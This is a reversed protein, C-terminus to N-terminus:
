VGLQVDVQYLLNYKTYSAHCVDYISRIIYINTIRLLDLSFVLVELIMELCKKGMGGKVILELLFM